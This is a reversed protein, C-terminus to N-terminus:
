REPTATLRAVRQLLHNHMPATLQQREGGAHPPVDSAEDGDTEQDDRGTQRGQHAGPAGDGGHKYSLRQDVEPEEDNSCGSGRHHAAHEQVQALGGSLMRGCGDLLRQARAEIALEQNQAWPVQFPPSGSLQYSAGDVAHFLQFRIVALVQRLEEDCHQRGDADEDVQPGQIRRQRRHYTQKEWQREKAGPEEALGGAM